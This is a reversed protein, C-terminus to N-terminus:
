TRGPVYKLIIEDLEEQTLSPILRRVREQSTALLNNTEVHLEYAERSRFVKQTSLTMINKIVKLTGQEIRIPTRNSDNIHKLPVAYASSGNARIVEYEEIKEKGKLSSYRAYNTVIVFSDGKKLMKKNPKQM